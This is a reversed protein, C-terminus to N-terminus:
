KALPRTTNGHHAIIEQADLVLQDPISLRELGEGSGPQPRKKWLRPLGVWKLSSSQM